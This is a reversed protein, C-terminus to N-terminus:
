ADLSESIEEALDSLDAATRLMALVKERAVDFKASGSVLTLMAGIQERLLENTEEVDSLAVQVLGKQRNEVELRLADTLEAYIPHQQLSQIDEVAATLVQLLRIVDVEAMGSRTEEASILEGERSRARSGAPGLLRQLAQKLARVLVAEAPAYTDAIATLAALIRAAEDRTIM